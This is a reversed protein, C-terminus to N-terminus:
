EIATMHNNTRWAGIIRIVDRSESRARPDRILKVTIAM